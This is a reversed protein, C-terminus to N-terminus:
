RQAGSLCVRMAPLKLLRIFCAAAMCALMCFAWASIALMSTMPSDPPPMTLTVMFPRCSTFRTCISGAPPPSSRSSSSSRIAAAALSATCLSSARTCSFIPLTVAPSCSGGPIFSGNQHLMRREEGPEDVGQARQGPDTRLARLAHRKMQQLFSSRPCACEGLREARGQLRHAAALAAAHEGFPLQAHDAGGWLAIGRKQTRDLRRGIHDRDLGGAAIASAVEHEHAVERREVADSGRLETDPFEVGYEGFAAHVLQNKGGVRGDLALRSGMVQALQRRAARNSGAADSVAHRDAPLELVDIAARERVCEGAALRDASLLAGCPSATMREARGNRAAHRPSSRACGACGATARTAARTCRAARSRPAYRAAPSVCIGAIPSGAARRWSSCKPFDSRASMSPKWRRCLIAYGRHTSSLRATPLSSCDRRPPPTAAKRRAGWRASRSRRRHCWAGCWRPSALVPNASWRPAHARSSRQACRMSAATM